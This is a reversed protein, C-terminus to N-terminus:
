FILESGANLLIKITNMVNDVSGVYNGLYGATGADRSEYLFTVLLVVAQRTSARMDNDAYYGQKKHQYSEAYDIASEILATIYDDDQVFDDTMILNKKVLPLLSSSEM